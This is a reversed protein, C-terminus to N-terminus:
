LRSALVEKCAEVVRTADDDTMAASMPLCVHRECLQEAMEFHSDRGLGLDQFVPQRHLPTEYVEGALCIGHENRLAAKFGPRDISQGLLAIFKYYNSAVGPSTALPSLGSFNRLGKTYVSAVSCRREIFEQLHALQSLGIAAHIESMRWNYGLEVHLNAGFGAKGQDRFVKASSALNVDDTAIM